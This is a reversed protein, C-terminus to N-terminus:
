LLSLSDAHFGSDMNCSYNCIQHLERKHDKKIPEQSAMEKQHKKGDHRHNRDNGQYGDEDQAAGAWSYAEKRAVKKNDVLISDYNTFSMNNSAVLQGAANYMNFFSMYVGKRTRFKDAYILGGDNTVAITTNSLDYDGTTDAKAWLLNGEADLKAQPSAMEERQDKGTDAQTHAQSHQDERVGGAM